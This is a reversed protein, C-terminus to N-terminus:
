INNLYSSQKPVFQRSRGRKAKFQNLKMGMQRDLYKLQERAALVKKGHILQFGQVWSFCRKDNKSKRFNFGSIRKNFHFIISKTTKDIDLDTDSLEISNFFETQLALEKEISSKRIRISGKYSYEYGLFSIWPFSKGFEYLKSKSSYFQKNYTTLEIVPHYELQLSKMVQKYQEYFDLTAQKHKSIFIVDDCYRLYLTDGYRGKVEEAVKDVEHLLICIM